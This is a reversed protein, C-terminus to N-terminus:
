LCPADCALHWRAQEAGIPVNLLHCPTPM